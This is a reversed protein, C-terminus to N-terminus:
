VGGFGPPASKSRKLPPNKVDGDKHKNNGLGILRKIQRPHNAKVQKQFPEDETLTKLVRGYRKVKIPEGDYFYEGENPAKFIKTAHVMEYVVHYDEEEVISQHNAHEKAFKKSLTVYDMPELTFDEAKQARYVYIFRKGTLEFYSKGKSTQRRVERDNDTVESETTIPTPTIDARNTLVNTKFETPAEEENNNHYLEIDGDMYKNSERIINTTDPERFMLESYEYNKNKGKNKIFGFQRYFRVLRNISSAGFDKSPTLLITTKNKDAWEIIREMVETGQGQNRIAKDVVLKKIVLHNKRTDYVATLSVLPFDEIIEDRLNFWGSPDDIPYQQIHTSTTDGYEGEKLIEESKEGDVMELAEDIVELTNPVCDPLNIEDRKFWQGEEHEVVGNANVKFEGSFKTCFYFAHTYDYSTLPIYHINIKKIDLNTEEKVERILGDELTEGKELTGGPFCWKGPMWEDDESRRLLLIKDDDILVVHSSNWDEKKAESLFKNWKNYM